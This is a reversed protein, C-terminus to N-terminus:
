RSPTLSPVLPYSGEKMPHCHEFSLRLLFTLCRREKEARKLVDIRVGERKVYKWSILSPALPYSGEKVPHCHEFSLHPLCTLCRREKEATKLVDIRVGEWKESM